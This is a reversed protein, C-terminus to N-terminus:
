TVDKKLDDKVSGKIRKLPKFPLMNVFKYSIIPNIIFLGICFVLIHILYSQSIIDVLNDLCFFEFIGLIIYIFMSSLFYIFKYFGKM